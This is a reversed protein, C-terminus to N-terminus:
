EIGNLYLGNSDSRTSDGRGVKKLGDPSVGDFRKLSSGNFSARRRASRTMVSSENKSTRPARTGFLEIPAAISSNSSSTILRLVYYYIDIKIRFSRLISPSDLKIHKYIYISVICTQTM